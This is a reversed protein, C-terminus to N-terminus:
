PPRKKCLERGGVLGDLHIDQIIGGERETFETAETHFRGLERM